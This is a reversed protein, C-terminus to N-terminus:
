ARGQASAASRSAAVFAQGLSVGGDNAPVAHNTYVDLTRERVLASTRALLLANQFVGGSLAVRTAGTTDALEACASAVAVALSEHFAAALEAASRGARHREVLAMVLSPTDIVLPTGCCRVSITEVSGAPVTRALAELRMAASAEFSSTHAVGLLSAVADFLRGASTSV